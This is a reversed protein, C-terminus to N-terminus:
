RAMSMWRDGQRDSVKVIHKLPCDDNHDDKESGHRSCCFQQGRRANPIEHQCRQCLIAGAMKTTSDAGKSLWDPKFEGSALEQLDAARAVSGLVVVWVPFGNERAIEEVRDRQSADLEAILINAAEDLTELRGPKRILGALPRKLIRERLREDAQTYENLFAKVAARQVEDDATHLAHIPDHARTTELTEMVREGEPDDQMMSPREAPDVMAQGTKGVKGSLVVAPKPELPKSGTALAAAAAEQEELSPMPPDRRSILEALLSRVRAPTARQGKLLTSVYQESEPDRFKVTVYKSM